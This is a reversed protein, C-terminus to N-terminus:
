YLALLYMFLFSNFVRRMCVSELDDFTYVDPEIHLLYKVHLNHLCEAMTVKAIVVPCGYVIEEYIPFSMMLVAADRSLKFHYKKSM